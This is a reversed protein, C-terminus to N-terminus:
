SAYKTLALLSLEPSTMFGHLSTPARGWVGIYCSGDDLTSVLKYYFTLTILIENSVM